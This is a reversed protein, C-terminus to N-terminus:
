DSQNAPGNEKPPNETVASVIPEQIEKMRSSPLEFVLNRGQLLAYVRDGSEPAHILLTFNGPQDGGLGISLRVAPRDLGYPELSDPNLAVLTEAHLTSLGALLNEIANPHIRRGVEGPSWPEQANRRSVVVSEEGQTVSLRVVAAPDFQLIERSLYPLTDVPSFQLLDPVVQMIEGDRDTRLWARGEPIEEGGLVEFRDTRTEGNRDHEFSVRYLSKREPEAPLFLEVRADLWVQIMRRVRLLSAEREMPKRVNWFEGSKELRMEQDPTRIEVATVTDPGARLVRRDRLARMESRALIRLGKSVLVLGEQGSLRAYCAEPETPVDGGVVLEVPVKSTAPWLRIVDERSQFAELVEPSPDNVVGLLRAQLFKEVLEPVKEQDAYGSFPERFWWDGGSRELRAVRQETILALSRVDSRSMPFLNKDRFAFVDEPLIELLDSSVLMVNQSAEEKVYLADGLPNPDGIRYERQEGGTGLTLVMRPVALGYDALTREDRRMDAPTILVGRNLTRFRALLQNVLAEAAKAGQPHELEWGQGTRFMMMDYEPTRLGIRNIREVPLDFAQRDLERRQDTSYSRMEFFWIYAATGIVALLLLVTKSSRM